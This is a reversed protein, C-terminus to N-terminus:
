SLETALLRPRRHVSVAIAQAAVAALTAATFAIVTGAPVILVAVVACFAVFGFMGALMGRLFAGVAGAGDDRHVMVVLASALVPLAALIGGVLPDVLRAAAALTVVLLTAIAMRRPISVRRVGTPTGPASPLARVAILLSGTAAVVAWSVSAHSSAGALGGLVAATAWGSTLNTRWGVRLALSGYTLVFGSMAVLGLLTGVASRAAARPGLQVATILLVPGVIAPFASLLGGLRPGWRRAALLSTGVLAPALALSLLSRTM